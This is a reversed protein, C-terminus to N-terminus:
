QDVIYVRGITYHSVRNRMWFDAGAPMIGGGELTMGYLNGDGGQVLGAFPYAGDACNAQSCFSYLTTFEGNPKIRFITGCGSVSYGQNQNCLSNAVNGGYATMGYYNGDAAQILSGGSSFGDTCDARSCFNYFVSESYTQACVFYQCLLVVIALKVVRALFTRPMNRGQSLEIPWVAMILSVM